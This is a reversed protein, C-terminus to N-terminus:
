SWSIVKVNKTAVKLGNDTICYEAIFRGYCDKIDYVKIVKGRTGAPYKRGKVVEIIAGVDVRGQHLNYLRRAEKDIEMGRIKELEELTFEELSLHPSEGYPYDFDEVTVRKVDRTEPNYLKCTILLFGSHEIKHYGKLKEM